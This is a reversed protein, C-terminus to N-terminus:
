PVPAAALIEDIVREGTWGEAAAAYDLSLRHALVAVAWRRVDEPLVYDRDALVAAARAVALLHLSGRPGAGHRLVRGDGDRTAAVLRVVYDVIKADAHVTDLSATPLAVKGGVTAGARGLLRRETAPDPYGVTVRLAFRDLQSEPLPFTGQQEGPNVTAFVHFPRPLALTRPGITVQREQMAELLASQVRPSTRNLEDALLLSVFAPGTRVQFEGRGPHFIETGIVDGPLMDATFSIRGFPLELAAALAQVATTKAVGPPGEILVHEGTLVAVVLADVLRPQGLVVEGLLARLTGAFAPLDTTAASM